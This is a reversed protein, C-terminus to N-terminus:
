GLRRLQRRPLFLFKPRHRSAYEFSKLVRVSGDTLSVIAFEAKGQRPESSHEFQVLLTKGDPSWDNPMGWENRMEKRRVYVTREGKGDTGVVRIEGDNAAGYHWSALWKGDRSIAGQDVFGNKQNWQGWNTLPQCAGTASDIVAMNGTSYETAGLLRGDESVNWPTCSQAEGLKLQRTVVAPSSGGPLAALRLRAQDAIQKQDGYSKVVTEFAKRPKRTASSKTASGLRYQAQAAIQRTVGKSAIVKRYGDIAAQLNGTVREEHMAAGLLAEPSQAPASIAFGAFLLAALLARNKRHSMYM